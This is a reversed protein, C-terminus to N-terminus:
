TLRTESNRINVLVVIKNEPLNIDEHDAVEEEEYDLSLYGKSAEVDSFLNKLQPNSELAEKIANKLDIKSYNKNNIVVARVSIDYQSNLVYQTRTRKSTPPKKKSYFKKLSRSIRLRRYYEKRNAFYLSRGSATRLNVM